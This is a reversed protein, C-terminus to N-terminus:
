GVVVVFLLELRHTGRDELRLREVAIRAYRIQEHAVHQGTEGSRGVEAREAEVAQITGRIEALPAEADLLDEARVPHEFGLIGTALAVLHRLAAIEVRPANVRGTRYRDGLAYGIALKARSHQQGIVAAPGAVIGQGGLDLADM